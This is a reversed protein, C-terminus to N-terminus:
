PLDRGQAARVLRGDRVRFREGRWEITNDAYTWVWLAMALCDQVPLLLLDRLVRRDGLIGVGVMLAVAIRAALALLFLLLASLSGGTTLLYVLAWALPHTFGLAIYSEPRAAQITRAWRLQHRWFGTFTYPPVATSVPEPSLVVKYGAEAVNRGLDHDDALVDTLAELGGAARLAERTVFM